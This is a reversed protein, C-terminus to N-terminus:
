YVSHGFTIRGEGSSFRFRQFVQRAEQRERMRGHRQRVAAMGEPSKRSRLAWFSSRVDEKAPSAAKTTRGCVV